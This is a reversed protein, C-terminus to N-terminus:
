PASFVEFQYHAKVATQEPGVIWGMTVALGWM